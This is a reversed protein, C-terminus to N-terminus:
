AVRQALLALSGAVLPSLEQRAWEAAASTAPRSGGTALALRALRAAHTTPQLHEGDSLRRRAEAPRGADLLALAELCRLEFADSHPSPPPALGALAERASAVESAASPDDRAILDLNTLASVILGCRAEAEILRARWRLLEPEAAVAVRLYVAAQVANGLALHAAGRPGAVAAPSFGADLARSVFVLARRPEGAALMLRAMAIPHPTCFADARALTEDGADCLPCLSTDEESLRGEVRALQWAGPLPEGCTPCDYLSEVEAVVAEWPAIWECDRSLLDAVGRGAARDVLMARAVRARALEVAMPGALGRSADFIGQHVARVGAADVREGLYTLVVGRDAFREVIVRLVDWADTDARRRLVVVDRTPLRAGYALVHHRGSTAVSPM